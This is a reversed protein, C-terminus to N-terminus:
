SSINTQKNGNVGCTRMINKRVSYYAYILVGLSVIKLPIQYNTLFSSALVGAGGFSSIITFGLSTCGCASTATAILSGSLWTGNEKFKVRISRFAYVNMSIVLGLVLTIATSLAFNAYADPPIYFTILPSFFLYEDFISFVVFFTASVATAIGIYVKKLFVM